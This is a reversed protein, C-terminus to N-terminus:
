YNGVQINTLLHSITIIQSIFSFMGICITGPQQPDSSADYFGTKCQCYFGDDTDICDANQIEVKKFIVILCQLVKKDCYNLKPDQCENYHCVRGPNAPNVDQIQICILSEVDKLSNNVLYPSDCVCKYGVELDHCTAHKGCDHMNPFDCENIALIM